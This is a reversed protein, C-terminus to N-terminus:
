LLIVGNGIPTQTKTAIDNSDATYSTIIERLRNALPRAIAHRLKGSTSTAIPQGDHGIERTAMCIDARPPDEVSFGALLPISASGQKKYLLSSELHREALVSDGGM